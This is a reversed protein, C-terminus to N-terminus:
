QPLTRQEGNIFQLSWQYITLPQNYKSKIFVPKYRPVSVKALTGPGRAIANYM